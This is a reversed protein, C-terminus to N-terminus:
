LGGGNPMAGNMQDGAPAGGQDGGQGGSQGNQPTEGRLKAALATYEDAVESARLTGLHQAAQDYADAAATMAETSKQRLQQALGSLESSGPISPEASVVSEVGIAFREYANGLRQQVEGLSRAAVSLTSAARQRDRSQARRASSSANQFARAASEGESFVTLDGGDLGILAALQSVGQLAASEFEAAAARADAARQQAEREQQANSELDKAILELQQQRQAIRQEAFVIKPEEVSAAILLRAAQQELSDAQRSLQQVRPAAEAARQASGSAQLELQAAEDRLATGRTNLDGAQSELTGIRDRLTRLEGQLRQVDAQLDRQDAILKQNAPGFDRAEAARAIQSQENRGRMASTVGVLALDAQSIAEDLDALIAIGLSNNATGQMIALDAASAEDADNATMGQAMRQLDSRRAEPSPGKVLTRQAEEVKQAGPSKERCGGLLAAASLGALCLAIGARSGTARSGPVHPGFENSKAM